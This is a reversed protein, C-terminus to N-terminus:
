PRARLLPAAPRPFPLRALLVLSLSPGPVAVGPWLSLPGFLSPAAAAPFPAVLPSPRAAGPCLVPPSLRARLAAPAAR